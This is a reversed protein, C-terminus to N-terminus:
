PVALSPTLTSETLHMCRALTLLPAEAEEALVQQAGAGAVAPLVVGEVVVWARLISQRPAVAVVVVEVAAVGAVAARLGEQVQQQHPVMPIVEGAVM